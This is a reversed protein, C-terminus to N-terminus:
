AAAPKGAAELAERFKEIGSFHHPVTGGLRKIEDKLRAKEEDPTENQAVGDEAAPATKAELAMLLDVFVDIDADMEPPKGGADLIKRALIRKEVREEAAETVEFPEEAPEPGVGAEEMLDALIMNFKQLPFNGPPPTGGMELIKNTLIVKQGAIDPEPVPRPTVMKLGPIEMPVKQMHGVGPLADKIHEERYGRTRLRLVEDEVSRDVYGICALDECSGQGHELELVLIEAPSLPNFQDRHIVTQVGGSLTIKGTILQMKPM